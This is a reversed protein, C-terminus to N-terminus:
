PALQFREVYWAFLPALAWTKLDRSDPTGDANWDNTRSSQNGVADHTYINRSDIVTDADRDYESMVVRDEIDYTNTNRYVPTGTPDDWNTFTLQNGRADYTAADRSSPATFPTPWDERLVWRGETDFSNLQRSDVSDDANYDEDRRVLRGDADYWHWTKSDISGDANWDGERYVLRGNGDFIYFNINDFEPDSDYDTMSSALRGQMDYTNVNRYDITGDADYDDERTLLKGDADYTMASRSDIVTDMGEDREELILNGNVDYTFTTEDERTLVDDEYRTSYRRVTQGHMNREILTESRETGGADTSDYSWSTQNGFVDHSVGFTFVEPTPGPETRTWSTPLGDPGQGIVHVADIGGDAGDDIERRQEIYNQPTQGTAEMVTQLAVLPHFWGANAILGAEYANWLFRFIAAEVWDGDELENVAKALVLRSSDMDHIAPDITVGNSPDKDSDLSLVLAASMALRVALGSGPIALEGDYLRLFTRTEYASTPLVVGPFIDALTMAASAPVREGIPTTGILFQIEDGPQFFFGGGATTTGLGSDTQYALGQVPMGVLFGDPGTTSGGGSSGCAPLLVLLLALLSASATTTRM